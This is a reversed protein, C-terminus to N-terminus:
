EMGNDDKCAHTGDCYPPRHTRKCGCLAVTLREPVAFNVPQAGVARVHSGDCFPQHQSLGCACWFYRREAELETRYPAAPFRDSM